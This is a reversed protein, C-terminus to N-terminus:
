RITHVLACRTRWQGASDTQRRAGQGASNRGGVSTGKWVIASLTEIEQRCRGRQVNHHRSEGRDCLVFGLHRVSIFAGQNRSHSVCFSGDAETEAWGRFGFGSAIVLADPLAAGSASSVSGSLQQGTGQATGISVVAVGFILKLRVM